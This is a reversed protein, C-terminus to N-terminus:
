IKKQIMSAFAPLYTLFFSLRRIKLQCIKSSENLKSILQLLKNQLRAWNGLPWAM